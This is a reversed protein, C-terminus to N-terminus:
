PATLGVVPRHPRALERHQAAMAEATCDPVEDVVKPKQFERWETFLQLLDEYRTGRPTEAPPAASPGIAALLVALAISALVFTVARFRLM